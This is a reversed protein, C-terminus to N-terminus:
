LYRPNYAFQLQGGVSMGSYIVSFDHLGVTWIDFIGGFDSATGRETLSTNNYNFIMTGSYTLPNTSATGSWTVYNGTTVHDITLGSISTAGIGDGDPITFTISPRAFTTGSVTVEFDQSSVGSTLTWILSREAGLAFPVGCVFEVAFDASTIGASEDSITVQGTPTAVYYRGTDDIVLHKGSVDLNQKLDDIATQFSDADDAFVVGEMSIYKARYEDSVIRAGERTAIDEVGIIRPATGRGMTISQIIYNTGDNLNFGNYTIM